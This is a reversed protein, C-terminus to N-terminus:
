VEEWRWGASVWRKAGEGCMRMGLFAMGSRRGREGERKRGRLVKDDWTGEGWFEGWWWKDGRGVGTHRM